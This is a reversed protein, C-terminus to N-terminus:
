IPWISHLKFQSDFVFVNKYRTTNSTHWSVMFYYNSVKYYTYSLVPDTSAMYQSKFANIKYCYYSSGTLLQTTMHQLSNLNQEIRAAEFGDDSLFLELSEDSDNKADTSNNPCTYQSQSYVNMTVILVIFVSTSFHTLIKM